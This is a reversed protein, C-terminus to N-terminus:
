YKIAAQIFLGSRYKPLNKAKEKPIDEPFSIEFNQSKGGHAGRDTKELWIQHM